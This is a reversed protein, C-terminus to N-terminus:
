RFQSTIYCYLHYPAQRAANKWWMGGSPIIDSSIIYDANFPVLHAVFKWLFWPCVLYPMDRGVTWEPRYLAWRNAKKALHQWFENIWIQIVDSICIHLVTCLLFPLSLLSESFELGQWIHSTCEWPEDQVINPKDPELRKGSKLLTHKLGQIVYDAYLCIIACLLFGPLVSFNWSYKFRMSSTLPANERTM